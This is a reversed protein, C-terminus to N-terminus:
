MKKTKNLLCMAHKNQKASVDCITINLLSLAFINQKAYVDCIQQKYCVCRMPTKNLLGMEYKPKTKCVCELNTKILLCM